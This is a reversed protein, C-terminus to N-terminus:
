LNRPRVKTRMHVSSGNRIANLDISVTQGDTLTFVSPTVGTALTVGAGYSEAVGSKLLSYVSQNYSPPAPDDANYLYLRYGASAQSFYLSNDNGSELYVSNADSLDMTMQELAQSLETRLELRDQGTSWARFSTLYVFFVAGTLVLLMALVIILEVFTFGAKKM